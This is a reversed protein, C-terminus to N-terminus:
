TRRGALQAFHRKALLWLLGALAAYLGTGVLAAGLRTPEFGHEASVGLSALTSLTVPPSLGDSHFTELLAIWEPANLTTAVASETQFLAWHGHIIGLFLIITATTARGTTRCTISCLLGLNVGLLMYVGIALLALPIGLLHVGGTVIGPVLVAVVVVAPRSLSGLCAKWKGVLIEDNTLDTSLLSDLTQREREISISSAACSLQRVLVVAIVVPVCVSSSFYRMSELERPSASSVLLLLFFAFILGIIYWALALDQGYVRQFFGPGFHRDKWAVPSV